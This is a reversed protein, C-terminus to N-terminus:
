RSNEGNSNKEGAASATKGKKPPKITWHGGMAPGVRGIVGSQKLTQIHAQVARTELGMRKGIGSASIKPNDRMFQVIQERTQTFDVNEDIDDGVGEVIDNPM